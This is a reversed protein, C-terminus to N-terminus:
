SKRAAVSLICAFMKPVSLQLHINEHIKTPFLTVVVVVVVIGMVIILDKYVYDRYQSLCDQKLDAEFRTRHCQWWVLLTLHCRWLGKLWYCHLPPSLWNRKNWYKGMKENDGFYMNFMVNMNSMLVYWHLANSLHWRLSCIHIHHLPALLYM